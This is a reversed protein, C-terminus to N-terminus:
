LRLLWLRLRKPLGVAMASNFAPMGLILTRERLLHDLVSGPARLVRDTDEARLPESDPLPALKGHIRALPKSPVKLHLDSGEARVLYRLAEHLDFM